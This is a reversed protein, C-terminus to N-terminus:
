YGEARQNRPLNDACHPRRLLSGLLDCLAVEGGLHGHRALILHSGKGLADVVGDAGQTLNERLGVGGCFLDGALHVSDDATESLDSVADTLCARCDILGRRPTLRM